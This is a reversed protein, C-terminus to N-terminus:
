PLAARHKTSPPWRSLDSGAWSCCRTFVLFVEDSKILRGAGVAFMALAVTYVLRWESKIADRQEAAQLLKAAGCGIAFGFLTAM